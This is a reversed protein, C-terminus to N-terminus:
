GVSKRLRIRLFSKYAPVSNTVFAIINPEKVIRLRIGKSDLLKFKKPIIVNIQM